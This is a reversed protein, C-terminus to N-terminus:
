VTPWHRGYEGDLLRRERQQDPFRRVGRAPNDERLGQEMGYAFIGGLLGVMRTAATRGGRVISDGRAKTKRPQHASTIAIAHMLATIDQRTISAVTRNGLTPKIHNAIRGRDLELTSARKPERRPGPIKGAEAAAVYGDCVEAITMAKRAAQKLGAPDDGDAVAGLIRRAEARATDPTWPGGRRCITHWKQRREATRYVPVFHCGRREAPSRRVGQRIHGLRGPRARAGRRGKFDSEFRM